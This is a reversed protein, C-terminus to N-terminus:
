DSYIHSTVTKRVLRRISVVVRLEPGIVYVSNDSLEAKIMWHKRAPRITREYDKIVNSVVALFSETANLEDTPNCLQTTRICHGNHGRLKEAHNGLEERGIGFGADGAQFAQQAQTERLFRRRRLQVHHQSVVDGNRRIDTLSHKGTGEVVVVKKRLDPLRHQDGMAGQVRNNFGSDDILVLRRHGM